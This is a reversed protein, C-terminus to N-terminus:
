SFRRLTQWKCFARQCVRRPRLRFAHWFIRLHFQPFLWRGLSGVRECAMHRCNRCFSNLKVSVPCCPSWFECYSAPVDCANALGDRFFVFLFLILVTEVREVKCAKVNMENWDNWSGLKRSSKKARLPCAEVAELLAAEDVVGGRSRMACSYVASSELRKPASASVVPPACPLWSVMFWFVFWLPRVHCSCSSAWDFASLFSLSNTQPDLRFHITCCSTAGQRCPHHVWM